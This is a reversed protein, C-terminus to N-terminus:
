TINLTLTLTLTVTLILTLTLGIFYSTPNPKPNSCLTRNAKSVLQNYLWFLLFLLLMFLCLRLRDSYESAFM